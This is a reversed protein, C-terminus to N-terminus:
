FFFVVNIIRSFDNSNRSYNDCFIKTINYSLICFIFFIFIFSNNYTNFETSYFFSAKNFPGHTHPSPSVFLKNM